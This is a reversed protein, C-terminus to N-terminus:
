EGFLEAIGDKKKALNKIENCFIDIASPYFILEMSLAHKVEKILRNPAEEEMIILVGCKGNPEIKYFSMELYAYGEKIGISHFVKDKGNPFGKLEDAFKILSESVEYVKTIGSYRGNNSSVQLEFMADDKWIVEFKLKKEKM